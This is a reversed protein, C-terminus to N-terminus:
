KKRSIETRAIKGGTRRVVAEQIRRAEDRSMGHAVLRRRDRIKLAEAIGVGLVSIVPISLAGLYVQAYIYAKAAEPLSDTGACTLVKCPM